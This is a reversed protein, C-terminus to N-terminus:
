LSTEEKLKHGRPSQATVALHLEMYDVKHTGTESGMSFQLTSDSGIGSLDKEEGAWSLPAPLSKHSPTSSLVNDAFELKKQHRNSQGQADPLSSVEPLCQLLELHCEFRETGRERTTRTAVGHYHLRVNSQRRAVQPSVGQQLRKRRLRRSVAVMAVICLFVFAIVAVTSLFIAVIMLTPDETAANSSTVFSTSPTEPTLNFHDSEVFGESNPGDFIIQNDKVIVYRVDIYWKGETLTATHLQLTHLPLSVNDTSRRTRGPLSSVKISGQLSCMRRGRNQSQCLDGGIVRVGVGQSLQQSRNTLLSISIVSGITYQKNDSGHQVTTVILGPMYGDGNENREIQFQFTVRNVFSCTIRYLLECRSLELTYKGSYDALETLSTVEWMQRAKNGPPTTQVLRVSFVGEYEAQILPDDHSFYEDRSSNLITELIVKLQRNEVTVSLVHLSANQSTNVINEVATPPTTSTFLHSPVALNVTTSVSYARSPIVGWPVVHAYTLYIPVNITTEGGEHNLTAGCVDTLDRIKHYSEFRWQCTIYNLQTYVSLPRDNRGGKTGSLSHFGEIQLNSCKHNNRAPIYTLLSTVDEPFPATSILPIQNDFHLIHSLSLKVVSDLSLVGSTHSTLKGTVVLKSIDDSASCAEQPVHVLRVPESVRTYGAVNSEDVATVRCRVIRDRFMYAPDLYRQQPSILINAFEIPLFITSGQSPDTWNTVSMEWTYKTLEPDIHQNNCSEKLKPDGEWESDCPTLCLLPKYASLTDRVSYNDRSVIRPQEPFFAGKLRHNNVHVAVSTNSGLLPGTANPLRQVRVLFQFDRDKQHNSLLKIDIRVSMVNSDFEAIGRVSEYDAGAVGVNDGKGNETFYQVRFPISPDGSRVLWVTVNRADPRFQSLPETEVINRNSFQVTPIDEPDVLKITARDNEGIVAHGDVIELGMELGEEWEWLNDDIPQLSCFAFTTNPGLKIIESKSHFDLGAVAERSHQVCRVTVMANPNGRRVVTIYQIDRTEKIVYDLTDFEIIAMQPPIVLISVEQGDEAKTGNEVSVIEILLTTASHVEHVVVVFEATTANPEFLVTPFIFYNMGEFGTHNSAQSFALHVM